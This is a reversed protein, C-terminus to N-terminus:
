KDDPIYTILQEGEKCELINAIQNLTYMTISRDNEIAAITSTSMCYKERLVKKTINKQALKERIISYTIM